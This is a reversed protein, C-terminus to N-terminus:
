PAFGTTKPRGPWGLVDFLYDSAHRIMVAPACPSMELSGIIENDYKGLVDLLYKWDAAPVGRCCGVPMHEDCM